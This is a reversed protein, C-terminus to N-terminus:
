AKVEVGDEAKDMVSKKVGDIVEIIDISVPCGAICRGCGVCGIVELNKGMYLFKHYIRNRQRFSKEPRPNHGSAHITYYSTQCTDWTRERWSNGKTTIDNIDFCHCTPCLLTCVGCGICRKAFGEWYDSGFVNELADTVGDLDLTRVILDEAKQTVNKAEEEDEAVADSFLDGGSEFIANGKDSCSEVLYRDGLDTWLMDSGQSSGPSGEMSTCFCTDRPHTCGISIIAANKRRNVYYQDVYDWSFLSDLINQAAADCPRTGFLLVQDDPLVPEQIGTIKGEVRTYDFLKETQPFFFGKPPKQSNTFDLMVDADFPQYTVVGNQETPVFIKRDSLKRLLDTVKDKGIIKFM